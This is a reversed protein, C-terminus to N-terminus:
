DEQDSWRLWHFCLLLYSIQLPQMLHKKHLNQPLNSLELINHTNILVTYDANSIKVVITRCIGTIYFEGTFFGNDRLYQSEIWYVSLCDGERIFTTFVYFERSCEGTIFYSGFCLCVRNIDFVLSFLQFM